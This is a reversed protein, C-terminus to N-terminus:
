ECGVKNPKNIFTSKNQVLFLNNKNVNFFYHSERLARLFPELFSVELDVVDIDGETVLTVVLAHDAGPIILDLVHDLAATIHGQDVETVGPGPAHCAPHGQVATNAM